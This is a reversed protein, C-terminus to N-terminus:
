SVLSGGRGLLRRYFAFEVQCPRPPLPCHFLRRPVILVHTSDTTSPAPVKSSSKVDVRWDMGVYRALSVQPLRPASVFFVCLCLCVSVCACVRFCVFVCVCYVRPPVAVADRVPCTSVIETWRPLHHTM